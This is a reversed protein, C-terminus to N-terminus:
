TKKTADAEQAMKLEQLLMRAQAVADAAWPKDAYLKILAECITRASDPDQQAISRAERLRSSLTTQHEQSSKSARDRLNALQRRALEVCLKMNITTTTPKGGAVEKAGGYLDILAQLREAAQEPAIRELSMADLYAQEVPLLSDAGRVRRSRIELRRQLRYLELDEAYGKVTGFREDGSYHALFENLQPEIDALRSPDDEQVAADIKAFLSDASAPLTFYWSTAGVVGFLALVVSLVLWLPTGDEEPPPLAERAPLPANDVVTFHRTSSTAAETPTSVVPPSVATAARTPRPFAEEMPMPPPVEDDSPKTITTRQAIKAPSPPPEGQLRLEFDDDSEGEDQSQSLAYLMAKLRNSLVLATAVRQQPDKALLQTIISELEPPTQPAFRRVSPPSDYKLAHLVEPLSPGSFPPRRALLAFLVSGLSYMDCRATVPRGDAQEPAMYDATGLVGGDSTLHNVGYLKAIGFDTLKITGDKAILLNAPKLDRHIVGVDHAHKLGQCIEIGIRCVERWDFKRGSQMEDQLNRGEVLEMAYFLHGDHEGYGFLQVINPHRLAKLTEIEAKFRERFGPDDALVPSLVKIAARQGTGEEVGAYVAGMGGRGLMKEIKYPGLQELPM